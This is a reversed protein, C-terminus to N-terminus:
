AVFCSRLLGFIHDKYRITEEDQDTIPVEKKLTKLCGIALRIKFDKESFGNQQLFLQIINTRSLPRLDCIPYKVFGILPDQFVASEFDLFGTVKGNSALFNGPQYDGNTLVVETEIEQTLTSIKQLYDQYEPSELWPNNNYLEKIETELTRLPILSGVESKMVYQTADSLERLAQLLLEKASELSEHSDSSIKQLNEGELLSYVAISEGHENIVTDSLVKPVKLGYKGLVRLIKAENEIRGHRSKRLVVHSIDNDTRVDVRVPCPLDYNDFYVTNIIEKFGSDCSLVLNKEIDTLTVKREDETRFM